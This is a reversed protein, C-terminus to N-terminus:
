NKVPPEKQPRGQESRKRPSSTAKHCLQCLEEVSRGEWKDPIPAIRRIEDTGEFVLWGGRFAEPLARRGQVATSGVAFAHWRKGESDDFVRHAPQTGADGAGQPQPPRGLRLSVADKAAKSAVSLAQDIRILEGTDVKDVDSLDVACAEEMAEVLQQQTQSLATAHHTESEQGSM